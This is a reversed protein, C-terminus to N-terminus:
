IDRLIYVKSEMELSTIGNRMLIPEPVAVAEAKIAPPRGPFIVEDIQRGEKDVFTRVLYPNKREGPGQAVASILISALIVLLVVGAITCGRWRM